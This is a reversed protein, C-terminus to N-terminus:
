ELPFVKTLLNTGDNQRVGLTASQGTLLRAVEDASGPPPGKRGQVLSGPSFTFRKIVTQGPPLSLIYRQQRPYGPVVAYAQANLVASSINTVMQQVVLDGNELLQTFGEMEVLDSTIAIPFSVNLQQASNSQGQELSLIGRIERTGAPETFPYRLVVPERLTAGPAISVNLVSPDMSWNRPLLMHLRVSVADAYPNRLLLETKVAGVGAPLSRRALMFSAKLQLPRPDLQDVIFPTSAVSLHTLGTAPDVTAASSNGLLDIRQPTAGLPLDLAVEPEPAAENWLVLTGSGHRNFLFARVGPALPLEGVFEANGLARVFTRYILLLEDPRSAQRTGPMPLLDYLTARPGASRAFVIREAFDSLRDAHSYIGPELPEIHAYIAPEARSRQSAAGRGGAGRGSAADAPERFNRIYAPIQSPKIASAIRLDLAAGPFQRADFDYLASWPIILEPRNMLPAVQAYVREYLRAYQEGLDLAPGHSSLMGSFSTEPSGLEWSEVRNVYRTLAFSFYPRWVGPDANVLRLISDSELASQPLRSALARPLESFAGITRVDMRQLNSLLTDFPEDRRTLAEESMDRRWAPLQVLGARTERVIAPWLTAAEAVVADGGGPGREAPAIESARWGRIGIGFEPAAHAAHDATTAPPLCLFQAQRRAILTRQAGTGRDDTVELTATYLGAPLPAHSFHESWSRDATASANWQQSVFVLGDADAVRLRVNMGGRSTGLDSVILDLSVNQGASFMNGPISAPVSVNVRPVQFVALDDFWVAGRIDQQYIEFRGLNGEKGDGTGAAEASGREASGLQQPQLLGVQLVLSRAKPSSEAGAGGGPSASPGRMFIYLVRWADQDGTGAGDAAPGPTTPTYPQSHVETEPILAGTEDAFWAALDARAHKLQSTRVFALIYYDADAHIEIRKEVPPNFRYAVSGGNTELRFSTTASRAQSRDFAGSSYAPFGRGVVKSWYMPIAEFNGLKTEEFDFSKLVRSVPAALAPMPSAPRTGAGPAVSRSEAGALGPQARGAAALLLCFVLSVFTRM